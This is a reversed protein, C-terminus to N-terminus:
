KAVIWKRSTLCWYGHSTVPMNKWISQLLISLCVSQCVSLCVSLCVPLNFSQFISLFIYLHIFLHIFLTNLLSIGLSVMINWKTRLSNQLVTKKEIKKQPPPAVNVKWHYAIVEMQKFFKVELAATMKNNLTVEVFCIVKHHIDQKGSDVKRDEM